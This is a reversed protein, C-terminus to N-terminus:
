SKKVFFEGNEDVYVPKGNRALPENNFTGISIIKRNEGSFVFHTNRSPTTFPRSVEISSSTVKLASTVTFSSCSVSSATVGTLTTNGTVSLTTSLKTPVSISVKSTTASLINTLTLSTGSIGKASIGNATLQQTVSVGTSTVSLAGSGATLQSTASVSPATVSVAATVSKASLANSFDGIVGTISGAVDVSSASITLAGTTASYKINKGSGSSGLKFARDKFLDIGAIPTLKGAGTGIYLISDKLSYVLEGQLATTVDVPNINTDLRAIQLITGM